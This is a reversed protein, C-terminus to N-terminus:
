SVNPFLKVVIVSVVFSDFRECGVVYDTSPQQEAAYCESVALLKVAFTVSQVRYVNVPGQEAFLVVVSV